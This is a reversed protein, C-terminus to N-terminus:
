KHKEVFHPISPSKATALAYFQRLQDESQPVYASWQRDLRKATAVTVVKIVRAYSSNLCFENGFGRSIQRYANRPANSLDILAAYPRSKGYYDTWNELHSSVMLEGPTMSGGGMSSMDRPGLQPDITFNKNDTVHWYIGHKIQVTYDKKFDDFTPAKRAEAVLGDLFKPIIGSDLYAQVEAFSETLIELYKM